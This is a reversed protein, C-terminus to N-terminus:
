IARIFCIRKGLLLQGLPTPSVSPNSYLFINVELPPNKVLESSYFLSYLDVGKDLMEGYLVPEWIVYEENGDPFLLSIVIKYNM